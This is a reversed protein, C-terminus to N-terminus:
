SFIQSYRSIWQARVGALYKENVRIGKERIEDPTLALGLKSESMKVDTNIAAAFQGESAQTQAEVGLAENFFAHIVDTDGPHGKLAVMYQPQYFFGEKLRVTANLYYSPNSLFTQFYLAPFVAGVDLANGRFAEAVQPSSEGMMLYRDRLEALKAFGKEPDLETGSALRNAMVILFMAQIWSAPPLVIRDAYKKDWLIEFSEPPATFSKANYVLGEPNLLFHLGQGDLAQRMDPIVHALNPVKSPDPAEALGSDVIERGGVGALIVVDYQQNSASAKVKSVMDATSPSLDAVVKAGTRAEFPKAVHHIILQGAINSFTLIRITKGPFQQAWADSRFVAPAAVVSSSAALLLRRRSIRNM